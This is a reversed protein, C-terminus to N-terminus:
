AYRRIHNITDVLTKFVIGHGYCTECEAYLPTIFGNVCIGCGSGSCLTCKFKKTNKAIGHGNCKKCKLGKIKAM